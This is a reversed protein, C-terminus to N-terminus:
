PRPEPRQQKAASASKSKPRVQPNAIILNKVSPFRDIDTHPLFLAGTYQNMYAPNTNLELYTMRQCLELQHVRSKRSVLTKCAGMLSSNGLYRYRERPLDPLLGIMVAKEIDLFRGFGGGVFINALHEFDMGVQELMLSCAAYVAAKARIINELDAESILIPKGSASDKGPVIILRAQRGEIRLAPSDKDRRLKGAPDIWGTLFLDALLSIMGSGCIGAPKLNGITQWATIGTEPDVSVRDIAGAAARMGCEIGGGEFAPGASCACALLFEHNGIVLEGNTGIDVFLNVEESGSAISTCLLGSTIDGGVYSGIAPPIYVITEPSIDIGIERATLSLSQLITPTYPELRIHEPSLGLLLHIMTTNGAAVASTVERPDVDCAQCVAKVLRNITKLVRARLEELREPRRAYNIRSIVDLGCDIQDNYATRTALMGATKCDVLQVAVTTTGIDVAVGFQRSTRDGSELAGVYIQNSHEILTATVRGNDTRLIEAAHRIIQLPVTIEQKGCRNQIARILRDVDSLGDQLKANPVDLFFKSVPPDLKQKDFFSDRDEFCTVETEDIFSETGRSSQAPIEVVAPADIIRSKCALVFGQDVQAPTLLESAASEIRGSEIRVLCKGCTGEGGCSADLSIGAKHVADLLETGQQAEITKGGPVFTILPMIRGVFEQVQVHAEVQIQVM